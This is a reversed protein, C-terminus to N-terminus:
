LAKTDFTNILGAGIEKRVRSQTKYTFAILLLGGFFARAWTSPTANILLIRDKKEFIRIWIGVFGTKKVEIYQFGLLPNRKISTKYHPYEEQIIQCMSEFTMEKTHAIKM